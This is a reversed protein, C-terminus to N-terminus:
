IPDPRANNSPKCMPTDTCEITQNEINYKPSLYPIGFGLGRVILFLGMGVTLVPILRRQYGKFFQLLRHGFLSVGLLAPFTGLGFMGMYLTADMVSGVALSVGLATFLLGCPLFANLVGLLFYKLGVRRTHRMLYARARSLLQGSFSTAFRKKFISIFTVLIFLVGVGISIKQQWVFVSFSFGVMGMVYGLFLYGVVRGAQQLLQYGLGKGPQSFALVLPGCMALCHVSGLLGLLFASYFLM